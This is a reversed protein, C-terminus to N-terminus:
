RAYLTSQASAYAQTAPPLGGEIVDLVRIIRILRAVLFAHDERPVPRM